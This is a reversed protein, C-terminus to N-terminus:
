VPHFTPAPEDDPTLPRLCARAALIEEISRAFAAEDQPLVTLAFEGLVHRITTSRDTM